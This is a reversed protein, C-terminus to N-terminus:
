PLGLKRRILHDVVRAPVFHGLITYLWAKSGVRYRTKPRSATLAHVVANVVGDVPLGAEAIKVASSQAADMVSGYLRKTEEPLRCMMDDIAAISNAWLPTAIAAPEVISVRIGQPQMEVRLADSLAEIAYKSACYPALFPFTIRGCDSSMNVIRGPRVRLLPAFAQTVAVQGIVNIELQRRWQEIPVVEVPGGVAIGANNVLGALGQRGLRSSVLRVAACIQEQCTVDMVFPVLLDSAHDALCDVQDPTEMGAFVVFGLRDFRLACARGIGSSDGTVVVARGNENEM